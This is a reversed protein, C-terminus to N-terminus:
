FRWRDVIDCGVNLLKRPGFRLKVLGEVFYNIIKSNNKKNTLKYNLFHIAFFLNM